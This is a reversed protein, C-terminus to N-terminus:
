TGGAPPDLGLRVVAEAVVRVTVGRSRALGRIREFAQGVDIEHRAAVMGKAQEIVVRSDLAQQLQENLQAQRHHVSANILYGTAMDAMVTAAAVDERQWQRAAESYLNLAGVTRGALRMPLSGVSLVGAERAARRYEPWRDDGDLASLDPVLVAEGTRAATACPGAQTRQQTREVAAIAPNVATGFELRDGSLLSVSSGLLGLVSTVRQALEDLVGDIEYPTLLTATFESLTRLYLEHDHIATGEKRM